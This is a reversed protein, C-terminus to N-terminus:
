IIKGLIYKLTQMNSKRENFISFQYYILDKVLFGNKDKFFVKLM